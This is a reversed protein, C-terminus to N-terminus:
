VARGYVPRTAKMPFVGAGASFFQHFFLCVGEQETCTRKTQSVQNQFLPFQLGRRLAWHEPEGTQQADETDVSASRTLQALTVAGSVVQM